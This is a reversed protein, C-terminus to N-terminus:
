GHLSVDLDEIGSSPKRVSIRQVGKYFGCAGCITHPARMEGCNSCVSLGPARLAHHARRMNKKSRSTKWKPTAM